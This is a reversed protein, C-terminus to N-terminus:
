LIILSVRSTLLDCQRVNEGDTIHFKLAQSCIEIVSWAFSSELVWDIM